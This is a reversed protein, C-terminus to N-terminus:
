KKANILFRSVRAKADKVDWDWVVEELFEANECM